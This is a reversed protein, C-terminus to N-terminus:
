VNYIVIFEYVYFNIKLYIVEKGKKENKRENYIQNNYNSLRLNSCTLEIRIFVLFLFGVIGAITGYYIHLTGIDKYNMLYGRMEKKNEIKNKLM